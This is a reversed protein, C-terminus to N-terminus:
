TNQTNRFQSLQTILHDFYPALKEEQSPDVRKLSATKIGELGLVMADLPVHLEQYLLQM